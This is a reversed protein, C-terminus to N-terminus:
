YEMMADEEWVIMWIQGHKTMRPPRNKRMHVKNTETSGKTKIKVRRAMHRAHCLVATAESSHKHKTCKVM